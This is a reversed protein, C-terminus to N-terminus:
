NLKLPLSSGDLTDLGPQNRTPGPGTSMINPPPTTRAAVGPSAQAAEPQVVNPATAAPAVNRPAMPSQPAPKARRAARDMKWAILRPGYIAGGAQILMIWDVTQQAMTPVDYHRSVNAIAKALTEAESEDIAINPASVIAALMAHTSFLIDKFSGLDLSVADQTRAARRKYRRRGTAPDVNGAASDGSGNDDAARSGVSGPDVISGNVTGGGTDRNGTDDSNGVDGTEGANGDVPKGAIAAAGRPKRSTARARKGM